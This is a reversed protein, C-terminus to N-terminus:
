KLTGSKILKNSYIIISICIIWSILGGVLGSGGIAGLWNKFLIHYVTMLLGISFATLFCHFAQRRLLFLLIVGLLNLSAGSVTLIIDFINQSDFYAKQAENIPFVGSYILVLSLLMWGASLIYFITIVWVLKPRKKQESKSENIEKQESLSPSADPATSIKQSITSGKSVASRKLYNSSIRALFRKLDSGTVSDNQSDQKRSLSQSENLNTPYESLSPSPDELTSPTNVNESPLAPLNVIAPEGAVVV